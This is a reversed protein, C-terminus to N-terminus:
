RARGADMPLPANSRARTGDVDPRSLYERAGACTQKSWRAEMDAVIADSMNYMKSITCRRERRPSGVVGHATCKQFSLWLEFQTWFRGLYQNDALVLVSTGLYLLNVAPRGVSCVPTLQARM